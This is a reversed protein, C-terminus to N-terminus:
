HESRLYINGINDIEAYQSPRVPVTTDDFHIVSPGDIRDGRGLANGDHTPTDVFGDESPWYVERSGIRSQRESENVTETTPSTTELKSIVRQSVVEVDAEAYTAGSGYLAEYTTQFDRLLQDIDSAGLAHPPVGIDLQNSQGQYRLEIERSIEAESLDLQEEESIRSEIREFVDNLREPDLPEVMPESFEEVYTVDSTAIGYASFVSATNGFPIIVEEVGLVESYFPAHLPGAGGYALLVFDRPDHGREITTKRLLDAMSANVIEFVGTAAEEVTMDLPAAVHEEMADRAAGRDLTERGGLFYEPEIYGLLVDADTVTPRDGGRGYCAPGPDAGASKPGVRLAGGDDIWAVSGGGSGISEVDVAPQYLSYKQINTQPTTQLNGGIVLGVDFSTGGVDTCIINDHDLETGLFQSGTVGGTPGSDITAVARNSARDHPIVGGTSQMLYVPADLGQEALEGVLREVYQDLVPATYANVVTTATREYEGLKPSISSSLFVLTEPAVDSALQEIRKEHADNQFSWLLSVALTDVDEALDDIAERVQDENLEVIESGKYDVREDLERIRWKPVIPDPKSLKAYSKVEDNTLGNWRSKARGIHIADGHGRTTILGVDSGTRELVTNTTLTTGHFLADASSLVPELSEGANEAANAISNLVGKSPNDPTTSAKGITRRGDKEVLITDTFTGGTDVSIMTGM